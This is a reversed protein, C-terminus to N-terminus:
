SKKRHESGGSASVTQENDGGDVLKKRQEATVVGGLKQLSRLKFTCKRVTENVQDTWNMNESIMLGLSKKKEEAKIIKGALTIEERGGGSM